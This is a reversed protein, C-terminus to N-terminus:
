RAGHLFAEVKREWPRWLDDTAKDDSGYMQRLGAAESLLALALAVSARPDATRSDIAMVGAGRPDNGAKMRISVEPLVPPILNPPLEGPDATLPLASLPSTVDVEVRYPKHVHFERSSGDGYEIRVSAFAPQPIDAPAVPSAM